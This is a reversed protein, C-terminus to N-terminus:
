SAGEVPDDALVLAAPALVLALIVGVGITGGISQLVPSSSLALLGFALVTTVCAVLISLATAGIAEPHNRSEALFIGYDAGISLVLILATVHLLHLTQGLLSLVALTAAGALVAPLFAALTPRIRRYRVWVLVLVAGLGAIVLRIVQKRYSGYARGLERGQDLFVAGTGELFAELARPDNVGRLYTLVGVQDGLDVFFSRVLPALATGQLDEVRLPEPAPGALDKAFPGFAQPRFGEAELASLTRKALDEREGLAAWNRRQLDASWLVGHLSRQGDLLGRGRAEELRRHVVDNIQLAAEADAGLAVVFRSGDVRSVRARVRAQEADLTPHEDTLAKPDDLWSVAPLGVACAVVALVPAALARRRGGRLWAIARSLAGALHRQLPTSARVAPLLPAAIWRTTALAAMVGIAGYFSIQRVGPFETLLMGLFGAVTTIAGLFLGPWTRVIAPQEDDDLTHHNFVHSPYDICVGIMSSGFALTIGHVTGYLGLCLATAAIIGAGLPLLGLVIFRPSRFLGLFMIIIGVTSLVSIRTVDGKIGKESAQAIRNVGNMELICVGRPDAARKAAAIAELLPKQHESTFPSHKTSLFIIGWGDSVLQGEVVELGESRGAQLEDLRAQFAQWPDGPATRKFLTGTFAALGKKLLAAAEALGESSFREPLEAEPRDSLFLFRRPYYAEYFGQEVGPQLRSQIWDVEPHAALATALEGTAALTTEEDPGKLSLVMTRTLESNMLRRALVANEMGSSVALFSTVDTTVHLNAASYGAMAVLLTIGV